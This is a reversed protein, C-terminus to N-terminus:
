NLGEGHVYAVTEVLDIQFFGNDTVGTVHVPIGPEVESFLVESEWDPRTYIVTNENTYLVSDVETLVYDIGRRHQINRIIDTVLEIYTQNSWHITDSRQAPDAMGQPYRENYFDMYDLYHDPFAASLADNIANKTKLSRYCKTMTSQSLFYIDSDPFEYDIWNKYSSAYYSGVDKGGYAIAKAGQYCIINWHAINPNAEMIEHIREVGHGRKGQGDSYIYNKDTQVAGEDDARGEYVFFLNGKMYATNPKGDELVSLLGDERYLFRVVGGESSFGNVYGETDTWISMASAMLFVHSEGIFIYGEEYTVGDSEYITVAHVTQIPCLTLLLLCLIVCIVTKQKQRFGRM